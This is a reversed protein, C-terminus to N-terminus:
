LFLQKAIGGFSMDFCSCDKNRFRALGNVACIDPPFHFGQTLLSVDIGILHKRMIQTMQKCPRKILKFFVDGLEGVNETM